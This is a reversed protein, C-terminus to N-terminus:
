AFKLKIKKGIQWRQKMFLLSHSPFFSSSPTLVLTANTCFCFSSFFISLLGKVLSGNGGGGSSRGSHNRLSGGSLNSPCQLALFAFFAAVTTTSATTTTTAVASLVACPLLFAILRVNVHWWTLEPGSFSLFLSCKPSHVSSSSSSEELCPAEILPPRPPLTSSPHLLSQPLCVCVPAPVAM